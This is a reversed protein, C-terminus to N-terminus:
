FRVAVVLHAPWPTALWAAGAASLWAVLPAGSGALFSGVISPHFLFSREM